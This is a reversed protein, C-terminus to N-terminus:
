RLAPLSLSLQHVTVTVTPRTSYGNSNSLSCTLRLRRDHIQSYSPYVGAPWLGHGLIGGPVVTVIDVAILVHQPAHQAYLGTRPADHQLVISPQSNLHSGRTSRMASRPTRDCTVQALWNSSYQIRQNCTACARRGVCPALTYVPYSWYPIVGILSLGLLGHVPGAVARAGSM